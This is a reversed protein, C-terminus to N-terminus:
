PVCRWALSPSSSQEILTEALARAEGVEAHSEFADSGSDFPAAAWQNEAPDTVSATGRMTHTGPRSGGTSTSSLMEEIAAQHARHGIAPPRVPRRACRTSWTPRSSCGRSGGGPRPLNGQHSELDRSPMLEFLFKGSNGRADLDMDEWHITRGQARPANDCCRPHGPDFRHRRHRRM